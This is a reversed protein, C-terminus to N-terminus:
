YRRAARTRTRGGGGEPDEGRDPGRHGLGPEAVAVTTHGPELEEHLAQTRHARPHDLQRGFRAGVQQDGVDVRLAARSRCACPARTTDGASTVRVRHSTSTGQAVPPSISARTARVSGHATTAPDAM